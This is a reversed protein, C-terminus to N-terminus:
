QPHQQFKPPVPIEILDVGPVDFKREVGQLRREGDMAWTQVYYRGPALHVTVPAKWPLVVWPEVFRNNMRSMLREPVSSMRLPWGPREPDAGEDVTPDVTRFTVTCSGYETRGYGLDMALRFGVTPRRAGPLLHARAASRAFAAPEAWSGGRVVCETGCTSGQPNTLRWLPYPGYGDHCWEAVNGHLDVLGWANPDHSGAPSPGRRGPGATEAVAAQRPALRAGFSYPTTTTARCSWEWESETPLRYPFRPDHETMWAAFALADEHTVNVVPLSDGDLSVGDETCGSRHDPRFARFQANTVETTQLYWPIVLNVEHLVEEGGRGEEVGGRGEEVGRRGGEEPPSGMWYDAFPVLRFRMGLDNEVEVPFGTVESTEQQRLVVDAPPAPRLPAEGGCGALLGGVALVLSVAPRVRGLIGDSRTAGRVM